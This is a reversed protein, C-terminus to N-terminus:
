FRKMDLEFGLARAKRCYYRMLAGNHNIPLRLQNQLVHILEHALVRKTFAKNKCYKTFLTVVSIREKKETKFAYTIGAIGDAGVFERYDCFQVMSMDIANNFLLQNLKDAQKRYNM